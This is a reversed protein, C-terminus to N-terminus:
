FNEVRKRRGGGDMKPIVSKATVLEGKELITDNYLVTNQLLQCGYVKDPQKKLKGDKQKNNRIFTDGPKCGSCATSTYFFGHGAKRVEDVVQLYGEQCPTSELVKGRRRALKILFQVRKASKQIRAKAMRALASAERRSRPIENM